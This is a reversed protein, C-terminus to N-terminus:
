SKQSTNKEKEQDERLADMYGATIIGSPLAVIAIGVIPTKSLSIIDSIASHVTLDGGPSHFLLKIPKREEIPINSDETNWRVIYQILDLSYTNIEDDLWYIRNELDKYFNLLSPDPLQLNEVENPLLILNNM